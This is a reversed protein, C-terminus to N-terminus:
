DCQYILIRVAQQTRLPEFINTQTNVLHKFRDEWNKNLCLNKLHLYRSGNKVAKRPTVCLSAFHQLQDADDKEASWASQDEYRPVFNKNKSRAQSVLKQVLFFNLCLSFVTNLWDSSSNWEIKLPKQSYSSQNAPQNIKMKANLLHHPPIPRPTPCFCGANIFFCLM